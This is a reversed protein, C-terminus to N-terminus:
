YDNAREDRNATEQRADEAGIELLVDELETELALEGIEGTVYRQRVQEVPNSARTLRVVSVAKRVATHKRCPNRIGWLVRTRPSCGAPMGNM